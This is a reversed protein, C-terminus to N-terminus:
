CEDPPAPQGKQANRDRKRADAGAKIWNLAADYRSAPLEALSAIKATSCFKAVTSGAVSIATELEAIQAASINGGNGDDDDAAALGLAQMLCYRQLYTLTSGIAQIANKSGSTDAPGLLTNEERHGDRHGLICTVAIPRGDEQRTRFRYYLRHDSLIPDIERVVSALDAYKRDNHGVATKVIPKIKGKADSIAADFRSRKEAAEFDKNMEAMLKVIELNGSAIARNLMDLLTPPVLPTAPIYSFVAPKMNPEGDTESRNKMPNGRPEGYDNDDM